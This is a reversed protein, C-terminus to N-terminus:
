ARMILFGRLREDENVASLKYLLSSAMACIRVRRLTDLYLHAVEMSRPGGIDSNGRHLADLRRVAYGLEVWM